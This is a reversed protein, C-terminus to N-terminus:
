TLTTEIGAAALRQAYVEKALLYLAADHRNFKSIMAREASDDDRRRQVAANEKAATPAQPGCLENIHKPLFTRAFLCLSHQMDEVIGVFALKALRKRAADLDNASPKRATPSSGL